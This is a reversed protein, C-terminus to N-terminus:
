LLQKASTVTVQLVKRLFPYKEKMETYYEGETLFTATGEVRFGTGQYGNFGEVARAGLTLIVGRMQRVDAETSTM